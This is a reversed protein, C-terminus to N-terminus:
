IFIIHFIDLLDYQLPPLVQGNSVVAKAEEKKMISEMQTQIAIINRCLTIPVRLM